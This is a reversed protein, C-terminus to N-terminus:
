PRHLPSRGRARVFRRGLLAKENRLSLSSKRPSKRKSKFSARDGTSVTWASPAPLPV